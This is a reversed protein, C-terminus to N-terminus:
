LLGEIISSAVFMWTIVLIFLFLQALVLGSNFNGIAEALKIGWSTWFLSFHFGGGGWGGAPDYIGFFFKQFNDNRAFVQVFLASLIFPPLALTYLFLRRRLSVSQRPRKPFKPNLEPPNKLLDTLDVSDSEETEEEEDAYRLPSPAFTYQPEPASEATKISPMAAQDKQALQRSVLKLLGNWFRLLLLGLILFIPLVLLGYACAIDFSVQWSSWGPTGGANHLGIYFFTSLLLVLGISILLRRLMIFAFDNHHTHSILFEIFWFGLFFCLASIVPMLFIIELDIPMFTQM